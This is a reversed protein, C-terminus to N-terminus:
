ERGKGKGEITYGVLKHYEVFGRGTLYSANRGRGHGTSPGELPDGPEGFIEVVEDVTYRDLLPAIRVRYPYSVVINRGLVPDSVVEFYRQDLGHSRVMRVLLADREAEVDLVEEAAPEQEEGEGEGEERREELVRRAERDERVEAETLGLEGWEEEEEEIINEEEEEGGEEGEEREREREEMFIREAEYHEWMEDGTLGWENWEDGESDENDEEQEDTGEEDGLLSSTSDSGADASTQSGVSMLADGQEEDQAEQELVPEVGQSDPSAVVDSQSEGSISADCDEEDANEGLYRGLKEYGDHRGKKVRRGESSDEGENLSEHKRKELSSSASTSSPLKKTLSAVPSTAVTPRPRGNFKAIVKEAAKRAPLTRRPLQGVSTRLRKAVGQDSDCPSSKRKCCRSIMVVIAQRSPCDEGNSALERLIARAEANLRSIFPTGTEVALLEELQAATARVQPREGDSGRRVRYGRLELLDINARPITISAMRSCTQSRLFNLLSAFAERKVISARTM